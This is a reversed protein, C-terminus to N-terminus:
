GECLGKERRAARARCAICPATVYARCAACWVYEPGGHPGRGANAEGSPEKDGADERMLALRKARLRGARKRIEDPTPAGESKARAYDTRLLYAEIAIM